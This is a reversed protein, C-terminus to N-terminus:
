PDRDAIIAPETGGHQLGRQDVPQGGAADIHQADAEAWGGHKIIGFRDTLDIAANLYGAAMIGAVLIAELQHLVVRRKEARVDNPQPLHRRRAVPVAHCPPGVRDGQHVAIDGPQHLVKVTAGPADAPVRAIARGPWHDIFEHLQQRTLMVPEEGLYVAIKGVMMGIGGHLRVKGIQAREDEVLLEIETHSEITVAVPDAHDVPQAAGDRAVLQEAQERLIQEFGMGARLNNDIHLGTPGHDIADRRQASLGVDPFSAMAM